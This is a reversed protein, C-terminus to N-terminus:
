TSFWQNLSYCFLEFNHSSFVSAFTNESGKDVCTALPVKSDSSGDCHSSRNIEDRAESISERIGKKKKRKSPGDDVDEINTNNEWAANSTLGGQGNDNAVAPLSKEKESIAKSKVKPPPWVSKAKRTLTNAQNEEMALEIEALCQIGVQVATAKTAKTAKAATIEEATRQHGKAQLVIQGPHKNANSPHTCHPVAPESSM